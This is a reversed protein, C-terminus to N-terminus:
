RPQSASAPKEELYLANVRADSNTNKLSVTEVQTGKIRWYLAGRYAEYGGIYVEGNSAIALTLGAGFGEGSSLKIMEGNKWYVAYPDEEYIYGVVHVDGNKSIKIDHAMSMETRSGVPLNVLTGNKWYVARSSGQIMDAGSVYVDSGEVTVGTAVAGTGNGKLSTRGAANDKWYFAKADSPADDAPNGGVIFVSGGHATLANVTQWVDPNKEGLSIKHDNKWYVPVGDADQGGLYMDEGDVAIDNLEVGSMATPQSANNKWVFSRSPYNYESGVIYVDGDRMAVGKAAAHETGDSLGIVTNSNGKWYKAVWRTGSHEYGVLHVMVEMPRVEITLPESEKYSDDFGRATVSYSGPAAFVYSQGDIPEGDVFFQADVTMWDGMIPVKATFYVTEGVGALELSAEVVLRERSDNEDILIELVDSRLFGSKQAYVLYPEARPSFSYTYGPIKEEDVFIEADSIPEGDVDVAFSYKSEPESPNVAIGTVSLNLKQLDEIDGVLINLTDSNKMGEKLAFVDYVGAEEFTYSTGNIKKNRVFLDAEVREGLFLVDFSVTEGPEIETATPVVVLRSGGEDYFMDGEKLCGALSLFVSVALLSVYCLKWSIVKGM